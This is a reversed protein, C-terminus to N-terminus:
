LVFSRPSGESIHSFIIGVQCTFFEQSETLNWNVSNLFFFIKCVKIDLQLSYLFVSLTLWRYESKFVFNWTTSM